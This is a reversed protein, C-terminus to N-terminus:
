RQGSAHVRNLVQTLARADPTARHCGPAAAWLRAALALEEEAREADASARRKLATSAETRLVAVAPEIDCPITERAVASLVLRARRTRTVLGLGPLTPDIELVREVLALRDTLQPTREIALARRLTARAETPQAQATQLDALHALLDIDRPTVTAAARLMDVALGGAGQAALLDATRRVAVTERSPLEARVRLLEALVEERANLETLYEIFEFRTAIRAEGAGDPWEGYISRQYATRAKADAGRAAHVRALGRNLLGDTPRERLLDELYTEGEALRGLEVLALALSRSADQHRRDLQLVARYEDSARAIDHQLRATRAHDLHRRVHADRTAAHLTQLLATAATLIAAASVVLLLLLRTSRMNWHRKAGGM